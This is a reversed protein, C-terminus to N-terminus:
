AENLLTWGIELIMGEGPLLDQPAQWQAEDGAPDGLEGSRLSDLGRISKQLLAWPQEVGLDFCLTELVIEEAALIEAEWRRYQTGPGPQETHTSCVVQAGQSRVWLLVSVDGPRHPDWMKDERLKEFKLLCANVIHRLKVAQEEVKSALFFITAALIQSWGTLTM